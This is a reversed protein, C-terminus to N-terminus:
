KETFIWNIQGDVTTMEFNGITTCYDMLLFIQNNWSAEPHANERTYLDQREKKTYNDAVRKCNDVDLVPLLSDKYILPSGPASLIKHYVGDIVIDQSEEHNPGPYVYHIIFSDDFACAEIEFYMQREDKIDYWYQLRPMDTLYLSREVHTFVGQNLEVLPIRDDAHKLSEVIDRRMEHTVPYGCLEEYDDTDSNVFYRESTNQYYASFGFKNQAVTESDYSATITYIGSQQWLPGLAMVSHSFIGDDSLQAHVADVLEDGFYIQVLVPIKQLDTKESDWVNGRIVIEDGSFYFHNSPDIVIQTTLTDNESDNKNESININIWGREILKEKTQLTVCAPSGDYKQILVLNDKCQTEDFSVGSKFQKLPSEALVSFFQNSISFNSMVKFVRGNLLYNGADPTFEWEAVSLWECPQSDATITQNLVINNYTKGVQKSIFVDYELSAGFLTGMDRKATFQIPSNATFNDQKEIGDQVVTYDSGIMRPKALVSRTNCQEPILFSEKSYTNIGDFSEIYFLVRDGVEFGEYPLLRGPTSVTPQRVTITEPIQTDKISEEVSVTYEDLILPFNEDHVPQELELKDVSMITGVFIVQSKELLEEPSQPLWIGYATSATFFSCVVLFMVLYKM